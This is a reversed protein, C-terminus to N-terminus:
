SKVARGFARLNPVTMEDYERSAVVGDVGADIARRTATYVLEPNAPMRRMGGEPLHWPVDFGIGAYVKAKGGVGDVCRKAERFVYEPSLGDQELANLGPERSPDHGFLAYYLQLIEESRFDNLVRKQMRDIVWWRLRPGLIDHYLIPKVFDNNKAMEGYSMAARYFPDWSTRQHDVHQGVDATARRAKATRYVLAQIEQDALFWQRYWALVEPYEFFTRLATALVGDAPRPHGQELDRILLLLKRYGEAARAPDIGAARNRKRCHECFCAPEIGRFLVESLPGVREAGYQLGDFPYLRMTEDATLRVWERYAPHNWCPGHSEDGSLGRAAVSRYGPIRAAHNMGAELIRAYVRIKRKACAELVEAFLDRTGLETKTSPAEHRVPLKAFPKEPLRVWLYPLNRSSPDRPPSPHDTALVNLPSMGQHYTQTYCFIANIPAQQELFDLCRDIGEDLFSVPSMQIGALLPKRQATARGPLSAGAAATFVTNQLFTRRSHM